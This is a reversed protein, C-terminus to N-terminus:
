NSLAAQQAATNFLTSLDTGLDDGIAAEYYLNPSACQQLYTGINPQFPAVNSQYFANSPVPLYDTYLVAIKIGRAKILSCYNTGAGGNIPQILRNINQEDEVGDTVLFMVEQPKDGNVGTGNGPTPMTNNIDSMANDYNTAVDGQGGSGDCAADVCTNNNSYMEMVGFSAAATTWASQYNTTLSMLQTNTTGIQWLSDMSYAAFRYVPPTAYLGSTQNNYATQMLTSVGSTLEDLRLTINNYRAM